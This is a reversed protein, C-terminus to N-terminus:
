HLCLPPRRPRRHSRNGKGCGARDRQHRRLGRAPRDPQPGLPHVPDQGSPGGGADAAAASPSQHRLPLRCRQRGQLDEPGCLELEVPRPDARRGPLRVARRPRRLHCSLPFRLRPHGKGGGAGLFAGCLCATGGQAPAANEPLPHYIRPQCPPRVRAPLDHM